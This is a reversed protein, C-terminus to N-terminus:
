FIIFGWAGVRKLATARRGAQGSGGSQSYVTRSDKKWYIWLKDLKSPKTQKIQYMKSNRRHCKGLVGIRGCYYLWAHSQMSTLSSHPSPFHTWYFRGVCDEKEKARGVSQLPFELSVKSALLQLGCLWQGPPTRLPMWWVRAMVTASIIIALHDVILCNGEYLQVLKHKPRKIKVAQDVRIIKQSTRLGVLHEEFIM